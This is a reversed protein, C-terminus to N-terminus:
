SRLGKPGQTVDMGALWSSLSSISGFEERLDQRGEQPQPGAVVAPGTTLWARNMMGPALDAALAEQEPGEASHKPCSGGHGRWVLGALECEQVWM